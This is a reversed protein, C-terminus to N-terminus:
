FNGARGQPPFNERLVYVSIIEVFFWRPRKMLFPHVFSKVSEGVGGEVRVGYSIYFRLKRERM